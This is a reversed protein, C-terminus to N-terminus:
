YKGKLKRVGPFIEETADELSDDGFIDLDDIYEIHDFADVYDSLENELAYEGVEDLEETSLKEEKLAEIMKKYENELFENEEVTKAIDEIKIARVDIGEEELCDGCNDCIRNPYIDCYDDETFKKFDM